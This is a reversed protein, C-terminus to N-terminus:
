WQAKPFLGKKLGAEDTRAPPALTIDWIRGDSLVKM